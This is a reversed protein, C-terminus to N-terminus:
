ETLGYIADLTEPHVPRQLDFIARLMAEVESRSFPTLFVEQALREHDLQALWSRLGPRIEDNRYTMVLLLPHAACHRALYHLFELSTDDSWHLDEVILLVPQKAALTTFFQVLAAFIRRKEQEPELATLPQTTILDSELSVMNPLLPYLDRAFPKLVASILTTDPHDLLTHLLDLLPAYPYSVDTPFCNGQVVLFGQGTAYAKAERVLRSKGIGAEGSLLAVQGEGSKTQDILLHLAALDSARGILVPCVVPKQFQVTM